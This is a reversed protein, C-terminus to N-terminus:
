FSVGACIHACTNQLAPFFTSMTASISQKMWLICVCGNWPENEQPSPAMRLSRQGRRWGVLILNFVPLIKSTTNCAKKPCSKSTAKCTIKKPCLFVTRAYEKACTPGSHIGVTAWKMKSRDHQWGWCGPGRERRKRAQTTGARPSTTARRGEALPVRIGGSKGGHVRQLKFDSGIQM